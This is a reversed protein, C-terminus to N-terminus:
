QREENTKKLKYITVVPPKGYKNEMIADKTPKLNIMPRLRVLMSLYPNAMNFNVEPFPNTDAGM